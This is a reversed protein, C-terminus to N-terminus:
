WGKTRVVVLDKRPRTTQRDPGVRARHARPDPGTSGGIQALTTGLVTWLPPAKLRRFREQGMLIDGGTRTPASRLRAGVWSECQACGHTGGLHPTPHGSSHARSRCWVEDTDSSEGRTPVRRRDERRNSHTVPSREGPAKGGNPRTKGGARTRPFTRTEGPRSPVAIETRREVARIRSGGSEKRDRRGAIRGVAFPSAVAFLSV